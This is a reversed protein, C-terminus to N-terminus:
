TPLDDVGRQRVLLRAWWGVRPDQHKMALYPTISCGLIPQFHTILAIDGMVGEHVAHM